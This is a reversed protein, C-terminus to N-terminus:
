LGCLGWIDDDANDLMILQTLGPTRAQSFSVESEFRGRGPRGPCIM